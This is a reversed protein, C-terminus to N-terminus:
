WTLSNKEIGLKIPNKKKQWLYTPNQQQQQTKKDLVNKADGSTIVSSKEWLYKIHHIIGISKASSLLLDRISFARPM